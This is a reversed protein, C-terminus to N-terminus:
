YLQEDNSDSPACLAPRCKNDTRGTDCARVGAQRDAFFRQPGRFTALIIGHFRDKQQDQCDAQARAGDRSLARRMGTTWLLM